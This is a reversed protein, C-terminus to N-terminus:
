LGMEGLRMTHDTYDSDMSDLEGNLSADTFCAQFAHFFNKDHVYGLTKAIRESMQGITEFDDGADYLRILVSGIKTQALEYDDRTVILMGEAM